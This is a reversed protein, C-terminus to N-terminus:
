SLDFWGNHCLAIKHNQSDTDGSSMSYVCLVCWVGSVFSMVCVVCVACFLCVCMSM